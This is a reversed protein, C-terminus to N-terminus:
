ESEPSPHDKHQRKRLCIIRHRRLRKCRRVQVRVGVIVGVSASGTTSATEWRQLICPLLAARYRSAPTGQKMAAAYGVVVAAVCAAFTRSMTRAARAFLAMFTARVMSSRSTKADACRPRSEPRSFVCVYRVSAGMSRCACYKVVARLGADDACVLQCSAVEPDLVIRFWAADLLVVHVDSLSM